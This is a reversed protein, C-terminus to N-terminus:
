AKELVHIGCASGLGIVHALGIRANKVQRVGAEGRLHTCIEYLNAVGTAGTPHGKALLGGSLNVPMIGGIEFRGEDVYRGADEDKCLGLNGYHLMEASAFCDHLEVLDLDEPGLGAMEYAQTAANKTLTNINPMALNRDDYPDSTLVSAKVKIARSMGYEKAKKESVLVAAASGDVNASCMLKTNPYAIMESEMVEKLPTEIQYRSKPNMTSHHHNKVSIKAFQEFSTGHNRAHEMGAEAFIAPMTQSGILGELPIGLEGTDGGLLGTGMKEVGSVLVVDHIGAKISMWGERFATAGTACANTCNVIPIGTQGILQLTKQGVMRNVEKINGCYFAEMDGMSLDADDLALLISEAALEPVTKNPFRGFKIMDIGIIYVDDSM